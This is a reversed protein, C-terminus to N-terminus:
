HRVKDETVIIDMPIDHEEVPFEVLHGIEFCVGIKKAQPQNALFKDYYGGGYGIRHLNDDFGLMPIIIVDFKNPVENDSNNSVIKWDSAVKRTTYVQVDTQFESIDVEGLEQIPEFLHLYNVKSWDIVDYLRSVIAQSKLHREAESIKLRSSKLQQRLEQKTLQM